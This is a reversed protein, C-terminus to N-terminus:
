RQNSRYRHEWTYGKPDETSRNVLIELFFTIFDKSTSNRRLVSFYFLLWSGRIKTNSAQYLLQGFALTM